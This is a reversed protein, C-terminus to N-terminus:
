KRSDFITKKESFQQSCVAACRDSRFELGVTRRISDMFHIGIYNALTRNSTHQLTEELQFINSLLTKTAIRVSTYNHFFYPIHSGTIRDEINKWVEDQRKEQFLRKLIKEFNLSPVKAQLQPLPVGVSDSYFEINQFFLIKDKMCYSESVMYLYKSLKVLKNYDDQIMNPDVRNEKNRLAEQFYFLKEFLVLYKWYRGTIRSIM